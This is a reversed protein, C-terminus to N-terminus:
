QEDSCQVIGPVNAAHAIIFGGKEMMFDLCHTQDIPPQFVHLGFRSRGTDSLNAGQSECLYAIAIELFSVQYYQDLDLTSKTIDFSGVSV